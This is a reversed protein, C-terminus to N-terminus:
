AFLAFEMARVPTDRALPPCGPRASLDDCAHRVARRSPLKKSFSEEKTFSKQSLLPLPGHPASVSGEDGGDDDGDNGDGLGRSDDGGGDGGDACM